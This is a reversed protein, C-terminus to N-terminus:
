ILDSLYNVTIVNQVKYSVPNPEYHLMVHQSMQHLQNM